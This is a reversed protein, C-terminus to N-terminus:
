GGPALCTWSSSLRVAFYVKQCAEVDIGARERGTERYSVFSVSILLEGGGLCWRVMLEERLVVIDREVGHVV